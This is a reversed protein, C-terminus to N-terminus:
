GKKELFKKLRGQGESSVRREAIVKSTEDKVSEWNNVEVFQLLKKTERVAEKGCKKFNSLTKELFVEVEDVTGSMEALGISEAKKADFLTGSTMLYRAQNVQVKRLIFPSIVAPALGLHVESFCLKTGEEIAAIDCIAALGLAGGMVHGHLKGVIPVRCKLGADFMEFLEKSDQQNQSFDYDVMSKMWGLDAGACFSVGAGKLLVAYLNDNENAQIFANTLEQIMQPHFANRKEPRNLEIILLGENEQVNVFSM